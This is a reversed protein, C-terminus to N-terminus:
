LRYWGYGAALMLLFLCFWVNCISFVGVLLGVTVDFAKGYHSSFPPCVDDTISLFGCGFWRITLVSLLNLNQIYLYLYGSSENVFCFKHGFISVEVWFIMGLVYCIYNHVVGVLLILRFSFLNCKQICHHGFISVRVFVSEFSNRLGVDMGQFTM